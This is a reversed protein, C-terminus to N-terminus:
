YTSDMILQKIEETIKKKNANSPMILNDDFYKVILMALVQAGSPKNKGAVQVM